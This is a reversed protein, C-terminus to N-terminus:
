GDIFFYENVHESVTCSCIKDRYRLVAIMSDEGALEDFTRIAHCYVSEPEGFCFRLLDFMHSGGDTIIFHPLTKLFPQNALVSRGRNSHSFAARRIRGVPNMDLISKSIVSNHSGDTIKMSLSVSERTRAPTLWLLALM